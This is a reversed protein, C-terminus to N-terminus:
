VDRPAATPREFWEQWWDVTSRDCSWIDRVRWNAITPFLVLWAVRVYAHMTNCQMCATTQFVVTAVKKMMYVHWYFGHNVFATVGRSDDCVLRPTHHTCHLLVTLHFYSALSPPHLRNPKANLNSMITRCCILAISKTKQYGTCKSELIYAINWKKWKWTADDTSVM